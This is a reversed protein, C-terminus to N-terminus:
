LTDATQKRYQMPSMGHAQRFVRTFYNSNQFGSEYAIETITLCSEKQELLKRAHTLRLQTVYNKPTTHYTSSFLRAFHRESMHSIDALQQVTFNERFHEEMYSVSSAINLPTALKKPDTLTYCRSLFTALIRFYAMVLLERGPSSSHYEKYISRILEGAHEFDPYNLKLFSQFSQNQTLYPEIVFLAHFGPIKRLDYSNQFADEPRFMINCIHLNHTQTFRHSIGESLVFVDGRKIFYSNGNITQWATGDLVIVLETFDDHHHLRNNENHHGNQIFFPFHVNQTFYRLYMPESDM